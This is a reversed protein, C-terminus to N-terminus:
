ECFDAVNDCCDGYQDCVEDCYCSGTSSQGGCDDPACSDACAGPHETSVNAMRAHCTSMYTEGDCGCAGEGFPGCPEPYPVCTADGGCQYLPSECMCGGPLMDCFEGGCDTQPDVCAASPAPICVGTQCDDPFQPVCGPEIFCTEDPACEPFGWGCTTGSPGGPPPSLLAFAITLIQILM